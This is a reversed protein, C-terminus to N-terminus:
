ALKEPVKFRAHDNWSLEIAVMAPQINAPTSAIAAKGSSFIPDQRLALREMPSHRLWSAKIVAQEQSRTQADIRETQLRATALDAKATTNRLPFSITVGITFNPADTRFLNRLSRSFGGRYFNETGAFSVTPIPTCGPPPTSTNRCILNYLYSNATTEFGPNEPFILPLDFSSTDINGLSLGDLSLTSVLDIRPKTQNRFFDIDIKNVEKELRLRNLEPRFQM